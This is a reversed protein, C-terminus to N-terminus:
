SKVDYCGPQIRSPPGLNGNSWSFRPGLGNSISAAQHAIRSIVFALEPPFVGQGHMQSRGQALLDKWVNSRVPKETERRFGIETKVSQTSM